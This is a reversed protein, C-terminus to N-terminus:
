TVENTDSRAVGHVIVCWAGRDTPDELCSCQLPNGHWGGSSRGWGPILGLGRRRRCQCAPEKGSRRSAWHPLNVKDRMYDDSNHAM